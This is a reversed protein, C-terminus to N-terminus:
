FRIKIKGIKSDKNKDDSKRYKQTPSLKAKPIKAM